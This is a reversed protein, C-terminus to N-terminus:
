VLYELMFLVFAEPDSRGELAAEMYIRNLVHDCLATDADVNFILCWATFLSRIQEKVNPENWDHDVAYKYIYDLFVYENM